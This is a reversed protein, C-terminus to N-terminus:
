LYIDTLIATAATVYIIPSTLIAYTVIVYEVFNANDLCIWVTTKAIPWYRPAREEETDRFREWRRLPEDIHM